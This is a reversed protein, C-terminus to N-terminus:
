SPSCRRSTNESPDGDIEDIRSEILNQNEDTQGTRMSARQLFFIHDFYLFFILHNKTAEMCINDFEM